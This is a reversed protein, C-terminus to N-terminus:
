YARVDFTVEPGPHKFSPYRQESPFDRFFRYGEYSATNAPSHQLKKPPPAEYLNLAVRPALSFGEPSRRERKALFSVRLVVIGGALCALFDAPYHNTWQVASDLM